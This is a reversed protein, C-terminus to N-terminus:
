IKVFNERCPRFDRSSGLTAVTAGAGGAGVGGGAVGGGAVFCCVAALEGGLVGCAADGGGLVGGCGCCFFFGLDVPESSRGPAGSKVVTAVVIPELSGSTAELPSPL